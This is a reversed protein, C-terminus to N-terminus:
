LSPSFYIESNKSYYATHVDQSLRRNKLIQLSTPYYVWLSNFKARLRKVTEQTPMRKMDEKYIYMTNLWYFEQWVCWTLELDSNRTWVYSHLCWEVQDKIMTIDKKRKEFLIINM